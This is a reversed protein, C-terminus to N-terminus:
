PKEALEKLNRLGEAFDNGVMKDMGIVVDMIKTVLLAPGEMAWTVKSGGDKPTITFTATNLAKFPKEFDIRMVVRGPATVDTITMAGKGVKTSDWAYSTGVGAPTGAYTGTGPDKREYPNWRNFGRLDNILPFLKDPPAAITLSRAVRFRDPKTSAYAVLAVIVMVLVVAIWGIIKLM